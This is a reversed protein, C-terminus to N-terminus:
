RNKYWDVHTLRPDLLKGNAIDTPTIEHESYSVIGDSLYGFGMNEMIRLSRVRERFDQLSMLDGDITTLEGFENQFQDLVENREYKTLREWKCRKTKIQKHTRLLEKVEEPRVNPVKSALMKQYHEIARDNLEKLLEKNLLAPRPLQPSSEVLARYQRNM